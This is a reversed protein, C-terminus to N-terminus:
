LWRGDDEIRRPKRKPPRGSPVQESAAACVDSIGAQLREAIAWLSWGDRRLRKVEAIERESLEIEATTEQAGRM